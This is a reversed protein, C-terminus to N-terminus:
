VKKVNGYAIAKEIYIVTIGRQGHIHSINLIKPGNRELGRSEKGNM